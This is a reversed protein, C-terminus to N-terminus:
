IENFGPIELLYAELQELTLPGAHKVTVTGDPAILYTTPQAVVKYLDSVRHAQDLVFGLRLGEKEAFAIIAEPTEELNVPLVVLKDRYDVAAQQFEPMEVRCPECWTAWFNLLVVKGRFDELTVREGYLNQTEFNPAAEGPQLGVPLDAMTEIPGAVLAPDVASGDAPLPPLVADISAPAAGASATEPGSLCPVFGALDIDGKNLEDLCMELNFALESDGGLKSLEQLVGGMVLVGIIVLLAGAFLEIKHMHRQLGRLLGSVRDLAVAVLLFPAGLGMAYAFLTVGGQVPDGGSGVFILVSGLIPGICPSWGAAFVLGMFASGLYGLERNGKFQRRTDSYLASYVPLLFEQWGAPLRMYVARFVGAIHLGFLIIVIGGLYRVFDSQLVDGIAGAAFGLVTFVVAFGLVFFIGHVLVTFRNAGPQGAARATHGGMYGVYAPVLPLVCPSIFTVFGALFALGLSVDM